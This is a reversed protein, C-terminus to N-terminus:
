IQVLLVSITAGPKVTRIATTAIMRIWQSNYHFRPDIRRAEKKAYALIDFFRDSKFDVYFGFKLRDFGKSIEVGGTLGDQSESLFDFTVEQNKVRQDQM